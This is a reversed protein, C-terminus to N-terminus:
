NQTRLKAVALVLAAAIGIGVLIPLYIVVNIQNDTIVMAM